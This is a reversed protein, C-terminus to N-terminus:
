LKCRPQCINSASILRWVFLSYCPGPPSDQSNFAVLRYEDLCGSESRELKQQLVRLPRFLLRTAERGRADLLCKQDPASSRFRSSESQMRSTPFQTRAVSKGCSMDSNQM